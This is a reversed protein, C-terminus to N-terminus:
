ITELATLRLFACFQGYSAALTKRAGIPAVCVNVPLFLEKRRKAALFNKLPPNM